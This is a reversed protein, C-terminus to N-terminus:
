LTTSVKSQQAGAKVEAGFCRTGTEGKEQSLGLVRPLTWEAEGRGLFCFGVARDPDMASQPNLDLIAQAGSGHRCDDQKHFVLLGHFTCVASVNELIELGRPMMSVAPGDSPKLGGRPAEKLVKAAQSLGQLEFRDRPELGKEKRPGVGGYNQLSIDPSVMTM